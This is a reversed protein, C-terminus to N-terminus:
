TPWPRALAASTGPFGHPLAQPSAGIFQSRHRAPKGPLDTACFTMVRYHEACSFTRMRRNGDYRDVIRTFTTWPLFDMLQAFLTKGTNMAVEPCFGPLSGSDAIM